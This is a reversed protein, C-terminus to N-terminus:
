RAASLLQKQIETLKAALLKSDSLTKTLRAKAKALQQEVATRYTKAIEREKTFGALDFELDSQEQDLQKRDQQASKTTAVVRKTDEIIGEKKTLMSIHQQALENAFFSYDRLPRVYRWEIEGAEVKALEEEPIAVGERTYPRAKPDDAACPQGDKIYEDLSYEPLLAGIKKARDDKSLDSFAFREREDTPMTEYLAWTAKSGALNKKQNKSWAHILLPSMTVKNSNVRTIQFEGLYKPRRTPNNAGEEFVYIIMPSDLNGISEDKGDPGKTPMTITVEGTKPNIKSSKKAGNWVRGRARTLMRMRSSLTLVGQLRELDDPEEPSKLDRTLEPDRTGYKLAYTEKKLVEEKGALENAKKQFKQRIHLAEASLMMAVSGMTIILFVLVVHGWHWAKASFFAIVLAALFLVGLVIMGTTQPDM